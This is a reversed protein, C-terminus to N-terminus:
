IFSDWLLNQIIMTTSGGGGNCIGALGYKGGKTRFASLLSQVIRAGSMGIPHGLAVAGGFVNVKKDSIDLLKSNALVVLSFAENYEFFDIAEIGLGSKALVSKTAYQPAISFDVPEIEADAYAIIKAM